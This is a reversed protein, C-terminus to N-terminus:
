SSFRKTHSGENRGRSKEINGWNEKEEVRRLPFFIEEMWNGWSFGFVSDKSLFSWHNGRYLTPELPYLEKSPTWPVGCHPGVPEALTTRLTKGGETNGSFPTLERHKAKSVGKGQRISERREERKERIVKPMWVFATDRIFANRIGGTLSAWAEDANGPCKIM